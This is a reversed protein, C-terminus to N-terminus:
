RRMSCYRKPIKMLSLTMWFDNSTVLLAKLRQVRPLMVISM